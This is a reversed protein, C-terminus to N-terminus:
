ILSAFGDYALKAGVVLMAAYTVRYFLAQSVVRVLWVGLLVGAVAIPTLMASQSLNATSFQGLAFYPVVKIVNVIAFFVVSTGASILKDLNLPLTYAQYPPGGAHTVFSTYGTIVGWAAAQGRRESSPAARAFEAHIRSLGFFIAIIGVLIRIVPESIYAATAWGLTIGILSGPMMSTIISWKVHGRYNWLGIADMLLMVPLLIAAATVPPVALALLPTGLMGIGGGFGGKALGMILVAPIAFMLFYPDLFSNM